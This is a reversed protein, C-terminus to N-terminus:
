GGEQGEQFFRDLILNRLQGRPRLASNVVFFPHVGDLELIHQMEQFTSGDARQVPRFAPADM